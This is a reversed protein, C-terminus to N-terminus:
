FPFYEMGDKNIYNIVGKDYLVIVYRRHWGFRGMLKEVWRYKKRITRGFGAIRHKQKFL